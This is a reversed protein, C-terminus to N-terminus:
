YPLYSYAEKQNWIELTIMGYTPFERKEMSQATKGWDRISYVELLQAGSNKKAERSVFSALKEMDPAGPVWVWRTNRGVKSTM